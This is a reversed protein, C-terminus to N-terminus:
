NVDSPPPPVYVLIRTCHPCTRHDEPHAMFENVLQPQLEIHCGGCTTGQLSCVPTTVGRTECGQYYKLIKPEVQTLIEQHDKSLAEQEQDISQKEKKLDAINKEYEVKGEELIKEIAKLDEEVKEKKIEHDLLNDEIEGKRKRADELQKKSAVFEKQNRIYPVQNEMKAILAECVELERYAQASLSKEQKYEENLKDFIQEGRDVESRAEQILRELEKSKRRLTYIKRDTKELKILVEVSQSM